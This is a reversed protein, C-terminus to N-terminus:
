RDDRLESIPRRRRVRMAAAYASRAARLLPRRLPRRSMLALLARQDEADLVGGPGVLGLGDSGIQERFALHRQWELVRLRETQELREQLALRERPARRAERPPSVLVEDYVRLLTAATEDWRYRAGAARLADVHAARAPGPALLPAVASASAAADWAVLTATQPALVEALSTQAAFLCATGASAAEFPVLGFGEYLTPYVVAAAHQLLWAKEDEAVPGLVVVPQEGVALPASGASGTPGAIVLRGEWGHDARLAALLRV